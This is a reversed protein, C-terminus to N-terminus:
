LIGNEAFSFYGDKTIIVHDIVRVDHQSALTTIDKTIQLDANSPKLNGSPHNHCLIFGTCGILLAGSMILRVETVVATFGGQGVMYVGLCKNANNLYMVAFFEQTEIMNKTVYKKFVDVSKQGSNIVITDVAKGRSIRLKVQPALDKLKKINSIKGIIIEKQPAYGSLKAFNKFTGGKTLLTTENRTVRYNTQGKVPKEGQEIFKSSGKTYGGIQYKWENRPDKIGLRKIQSISMIKVADKKFINYNDKMEDKADSLYEWGSEVKNNFVIFYKYADVDSNYERMDKSLTKRPQGSKTVAKQGIKKTGKMARIKAMYDKAQKSGKKLVPM